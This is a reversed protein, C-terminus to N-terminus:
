YENAIKKIEKKTLKDPNNLSTLDLGSYLGNSNVKYRDLIRSDYKEHGMIIKEHLKEGERIGIEKVKADPVIANAIDMISCAKMKPVFIEGGEMEEISNLIFQAAQELTIWFRTMRKDTVTIEGTEEFQKKFLPIVSGRSGIVNGYRCCSLHPPGDNNSYVNGQIFLREMAMKTAGYLNIPSAAKDTSIGMVKTVKNELAGYLINQSGIINTKIAELPNYGCAGIQKLAACHIIIDVGETALEVRKRDRVNGILFSIPANPFKKNLDNQMEWQLLETRSFIRIGKPKYKTLLLNTLAKGLSGSGGSILIESGNLNM